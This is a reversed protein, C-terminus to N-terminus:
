PESIIDTDKENKKEKVAQWTALGLLTLIFMFHLALIESIYIWQESRIWKVDIVIVMLMTVFATLKRASFGKNSTDFSASLKILFQSIKERM